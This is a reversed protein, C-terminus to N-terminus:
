RRNLQETYGKIWTDVYEEAIRQNEKNTIESVKIGSKKEYFKQAAKFRIADADNSKDLQNGIRKSGTAAYLGALVSSKPSSPQHVSTSWRNGSSADKEARKKGAKNLTGDSNTYRHHGWRMGMVGFHYLENQYQM